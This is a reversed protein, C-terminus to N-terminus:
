LLRIVQWGQGVPKTHSQSCSVQELVLLQGSIGSAQQHSQPRELGLFVMVVTVVAVMVVTVVVLTVTVEVVEVM